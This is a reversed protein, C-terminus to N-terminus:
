RTMLLGELRVREATCVSVCACVRVRASECSQCMAIHVCASHLPVLPHPEMDDAPTERQDICQQESEETRQEGWM